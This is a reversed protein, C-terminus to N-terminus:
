YPRMRTFLQVIYKVKSQMSRTTFVAAHLGKKSYSNKFNEYKPHKKRSRGYMSEKNVAKAKVVKGYCIDPLAKFFNNGKETHTVIVSTGMQNYAAEQTDLGWFDGMTLDSRRNEGKYACHFCGEKGYLLLARGFDTEYLPKVHEKGNEFVAKLYVPKWYPNKYRVSFDILRSKYKKELFEIYQTQEKSSLPGQCILDVALLQSTNTGTRNLYSYLAAVECPLGTFLVKQGEDLDKKVNAFVLTGDPMKKEATIYKSGSLKILNDKQIVRTYQAHRYDSSYEVGYVVGNQQIMGLALAYGIGGSASNKIEEKKYYAYYYKSM